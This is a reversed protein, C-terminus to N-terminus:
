YEMTILTTLMRYANNDGASISFPILVDFDTTMTMLMMMSM